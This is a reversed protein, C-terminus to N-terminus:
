AVVMEMTLTADSEVHAAFVVPDGSDSFHMAFDVSLSDCLELFARFEQAMRVRARAPGSRAAL